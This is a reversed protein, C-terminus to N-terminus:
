DHCILSMLNPGKKWLNFGQARLEKLKDINFGGGTRIEKRMKREQEEKATQAAKDAKAKRMAEAARLQIERRRKELQEEKEQKLRAKKEEKQRKKEALAQQARRREDELNKHTESKHVAINFPSGKIEVAGKGKGILIHMMFTGVKEPSLEFEILSHDSSSLKPESTYRYSVLNQDTVKYYTAGSNDKARSKKGFATM